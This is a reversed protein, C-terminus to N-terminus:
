GGESYIWTNSYTDKTKVFIIPSKDIIFPIKMEFICLNMVRSMCFSTTDREIHKLIVNILSKIRSPSIRNFTAHIKKKRFLPPQPSLPQYTTKLIESVSRTILTRKFYSQQFEKKLSLPCILKILAMSNSQLFLISIYYLPQCMNIHLHLHIYIYIYICYIHICVVYVFLALLTAPTDGGGASHQKNIQVSRNALSCRSSWDSEAKFLQPGSCSSRYM